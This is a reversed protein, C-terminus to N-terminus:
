PRVQGFEILIGSGFWNLRIPDPDAGPFDGRKPAGILGVGGEIYLGFGVYRGAGRWGFRFSLDTTITVTRRFLTMETRLGGPDIVDIEVESTWALGLGFQAGVFFGFRLLYRAHFTGLVRGTLLFLPDLVTGDQLTVEREAGDTGFDGRELFLGPGITLGTEEERVVGFHLRLQTSLGFGGEWIDDCDFREGRYDIADGQCRASFWGISFEGFIWRSEETPEGASPESPQEQTAQSLPRWAPGVAAPARAPTFLLHATPSPNPRGAAYSEFLVEDGAASFPLLSLAASLVSWRLTPQLYM